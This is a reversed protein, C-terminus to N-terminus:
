YFANQQEEELERIRRERVIDNEQWRKKEREKAEQISERQFKTAVEEREM